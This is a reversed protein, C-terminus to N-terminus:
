PTNTRQFNENKWIVGIPVGDVGMTHMLLPSNLVKTNAEPNTLLVQLFYECANKQDGAIIHDYQKIAYRGLALPYPWVTITRNELRAKEDLWKAGEKLGIGWYDGNYRNFAGKMGGIIPNFYVAQLPHASVMFRAADWSLVSIILAAWLSGMPRTKGWSILGTLVRCSVVVMMPYIFYLHRWGDYLVSKRLIVYFVPFLIFFVLFLTKEDRKVVARGASLVFCLLAFCDATHYHIDMGLRLAM